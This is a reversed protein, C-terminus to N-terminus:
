DVSFAFVYQWVAHKEDGRFDAKALCLYAGPEEPPEFSTGRYVRRKGDPTYIEYSEIRIPGDFGITLPLTVRMDDTLAAAADEPGIPPMETVVRGFREDLLLRLAPHHDGDAGRLVVGGIPPEPAYPTFPVGGVGFGFVYQCGDYEKETGFVAMAICLYAGPEGPPAFAEQSAVQKLDPLTYIDYSQGRLPEGYDFTVPLSIWMDETLAEAADEPFIPLADAFVGGHLSYTPRTVPTHDGDATHLIVHRDPTQREAQDPAAPRGCGTLLVALCLLLVATRFIRHIM